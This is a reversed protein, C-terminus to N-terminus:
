ASDEERRRFAVARGEPGFEVECCEQLQERLKVRARQVRSKAGSLSLGIEDAVEQQTHGEFDSMILPRGYMEPLTEAMPRLWSLVEEHVDHEGDYGALNETPPPEDTAKAPARGVPEEDPGRERDRYFDAIARRAISFVWAEARDADRLSDAGEHLRVLTDQFVDEADAEPVRSEIFRRLGDVFPRWPAEEANSSDSPSVSPSM